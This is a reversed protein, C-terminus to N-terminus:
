HKNKHMLHKPRKKTQTHKTNIFRLCRFDVRVLVGRGSVVSKRELPALDIMKRRRRALGGQDRRSRHLSNLAQLREAESRYNQGFREMSNFLPLGRFVWKRDAECSRFLTTYPFLTDTRTSRPPRRIMLFFLM